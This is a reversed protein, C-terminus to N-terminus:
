REIRINFHTGQLSIRSKGAGKEKDYLTKVLSLLDGGGERGGRGAAVAEQMEDVQNGAFMVRLMLEDESADPHRRRLDPLMAPIPEPELKIDSSGNEVIRDFVDPDVPGLLRGYYGLVYKKIENPVHAYREGSIVNMVAQTGVFQSFPTIMIPWALESRVRAIEELLAEFKDSLGAAELQARYNSLMGGPLQHKYHAANYEVPVGVPKRERRAIDAFHQSIEDVAQDNVEVQYGLDRLSHVISQTAPQGAGNALPAISTHLRDCGLEAAELYVLPALGTLCHSHMELPRDGIVSKLAPVLTRVRDPTLLGGADKIMISNVDAKDILARATDMYHQDTHLPSECFSLAGFTYAGVSKAKRLGPAINDVDNLGDFSGIVDLGNAYLREVWTDIIDDALFDFAAINKSRILSRLPIGPAGARVRRVREWPDEKLYRVPVDFQITAMLDVQHFNARQYSELISTIHRTTMRTAWLSQHADRLTTDIIKITGKSGAPRGGTSFLSEITPRQTNEM